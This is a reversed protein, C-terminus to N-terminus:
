CFSFLCETYIVKYLILNTVNEKMVKEVMVIGIIMAKTRLGKTASEKDIFVDAANGTEFFIRFFGCICVYM